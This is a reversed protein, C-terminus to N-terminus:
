EEELMLLIQKVKNNQLMQDSGYVTTMTKEKKKLGFEQTHETLQEIHHNDRVGKVPATKVLLCKTM